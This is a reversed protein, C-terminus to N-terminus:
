KSKMEEEFHAQWPAWDPLPQTYKDYFYLKNKIGEAVLKDRTTYPLVQTNELKLGPVYDAQEAIERPPLQIGYRRIDTRTFPWPIVISYSKEPDIKFQVTKDEPQYAVKFGSYFVADGSFPRGAHHFPNFKDRMDDTDCFSLFDAGKVTGKILYRDYLYGLMREVDVKGAAFSKHEDYLTKRSILSIETEAHQRMFDAYWYALNHFQIPERFEGVIAKASPMHKAYEGEIFAVVKPHEPLDDTIPINEYNFESIKRTESDVKLTLQGVHKASAGAQTIISGTREYVDRVTQEDLLTHSHGGIVVDIDPNEKVLDQDSPHFSRGIEHTMKKFGLHTVAVILDVKAQKLEAVAKATEERCNLVYLYPRSKPNRGYTDLTIGFFGVRIGDFDKIVTRVINEPLEPQTTGLNTALVPVPHREILEVLRKGGYAWDHNGVIWMDYGMSEMAGYLSEGQTLRVLSSGRDFWDGADVFVSHPHQSKYQAVYGALRPLRELSQHLDNTHLITIEVEKALLSSSAIMMLFCAFSNAFMKFLLHYM